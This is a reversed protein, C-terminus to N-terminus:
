TELQKFQEILQLVAIQMKGRHQKPVEKFHAVLSLAFYEHGEPDPNTKQLERSVNHLENELEVEQSARKRKKQRTPQWLPPHSVQPAPLGTPSAAVRPTLQEPLADNLPPTNSQLPSPGPTDDDDRPFYIEELDEFQASMENFIQEATQIDESSGDM